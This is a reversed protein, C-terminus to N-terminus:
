IRDGLPKWSQRSIDIRSVSCSGAFFATGNSVAPPFAESISTVSTGGSSSGLTGSASIANPECKEGLDGTHRQVVIPPITAKASRAQLAGSQRPLKGAERNVGAAVATGVGRSCTGSTSSEFRNGISLGAGCFQGDVAGRRLKSGAVNGGPTP